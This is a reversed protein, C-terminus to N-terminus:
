VQVPQDAGCEMQQTELWPIAAGLDALVIEPPVRFVLGRSSDNPVAVARMGAAVAAAIGAPADEFVVCRDTAVGLRAAALLYVDPAPKGRTVDEGTVEVAFSGTLGVEALAADVYSRQGSTALAVRLGLSRGFAILAAAGPFAQLQGRLAILRLVEFDRILEEASVTLGCIEAVEPMIESLRRGLLRAIDDPEWARECGHQKLLALGTAFGLAESDLLLGDMDFILAQIPPMRLMDSM